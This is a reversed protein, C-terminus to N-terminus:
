STSKLEANRARPFGDSDTDPATEELAIDVMQLIAAERYPGPMRVIESHPGNRVLRGEDLVLITDARRLLSLRNAVVFATRGVMAHRLATVIEHETKSDVSATPDDLILIPPQLLLARALSLRQRQGGSLDVGSEGLVTQYGKPMAMIFDHASAAKAAQEVQAQSAHPSGFAINAAVTNSFLFSEQYVIGIQRRYADLDLSRLEHDDVLIRGQQPDYFRPILSLLSTKGAGTMGFIGIVEGPKAEFSIDRLVPSDARYGFTVHEFLVRGTLKV